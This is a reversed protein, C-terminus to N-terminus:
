EPEDTSTYVPLGSEVRATILNQTVEAQHTRQEDTWWLKMYAILGTIQADSLVNGWGVMPYQTLPNQIGNRIAEFLLPDAYRWTDGTADHAPVPKMGLRETEAPAGVLQGEGQYGHCHACYVQYDMEAQRLVPDTFVSTPLAEPGVFELTVPPLDPTPQPTPTPAPACAAFIMTLLAFLVVAPSRLTDM